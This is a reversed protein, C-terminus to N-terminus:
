SVLEEERLPKKVHDRIIMLDNLYDGETTVLERLRYYRNKSKSAM